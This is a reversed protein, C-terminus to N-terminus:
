DINARHRDNLLRTILVLLRTRSQHPNRRRRNKRINYSRSSPVHFIFADTTPEPEPHQEPEPQDIDMSEPEQHPEDLEMADKDELQADIDIEGFDWAVDTDLNANTTTQQCVNPDLWRGSALLRRLAEPGRESDVHVLALASSGVYVANFRLVDPGMRDWRPCCVQLAPVEALVFFVHKLRLLGAGCRRVLSGFTGSDDSYASYDPSSIAIILESSHRGPWAM